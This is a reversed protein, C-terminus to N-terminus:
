VWRSVCARVCACVCVRVCACACACACVCICTTARVHVLHQPFLVLLELCVGFRADRPKAGIEVVRCEFDGGKVFELLDPVLPLLSHTLAHTLVHTCTHAHVHMHPLTHAHM